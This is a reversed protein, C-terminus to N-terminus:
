PVCVGAFSSVFECIYKISQWSFAYTQEGHTCPPRKARLAIILPTNKLM